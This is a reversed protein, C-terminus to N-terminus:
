ALGRNIAEKLKELPIDFNVTYELGNESDNGYRLIDLLDMADKKTNICLTDPFDVSLGRDITGGLRKVIEKYKKDKM